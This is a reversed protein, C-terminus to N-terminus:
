FVQGIGGEGTSHGEFIIDNLGDNNIDVFHLCKYLSDINEMYRATDRYAGFETPQKNIIATLIARPAKKEVGAWKFELSSALVVADNNQAMICAPMALLM